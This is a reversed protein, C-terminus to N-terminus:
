LDRAERHTSPVWGPNEANVTLGDRWGWTKIAGILAKNQKIKNQLEEHMRSILGGVSYLQRLNEGTRSAPQGSLEQAMCFKEVEHFGM